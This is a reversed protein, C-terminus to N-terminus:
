SGFRPVTKLSYPRKPLPVRGFRLNNMILSFHSKLTVDLARSFSDKIGRFHRIAVTATATIATANSTRPKQVVSPAACDFPGAARTTGTSVATASRFFM